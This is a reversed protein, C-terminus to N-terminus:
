YGNKEEQQRREKNNRDCQSDCYRVQPRQFHSDLRGAVDQCNNKNSFTIIMLLFFRQAAKLHLDLTTLAGTQDAMLLTAPM